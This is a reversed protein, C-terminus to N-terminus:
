LKSQSSELAKCIDMLAECNYIKSMEILDDKQEITSFYNFLNVCFNFFSKDQYVHAFNILETFDCNELIKNYEKKLLENGLYLFEVYFNITSINYEQFHICKNESEIFNGKVMIKILDTARSYLFYSNVEMEGGIASLKFDNFDGKKFTNYLDKHYHNEVVLPPILSILYGKIENKLTFIYETNIADETFKKVNFDKTTYSLSFGVSNLLKEFHPFIYEIFFDCCVKESKNYNWFQHKVLFERRDIYYSITFKRKSELFKLLQKRIFEICKRLENHIAYFPFIDNNNSIYTIKEYKRQISCFLSWFLEENKIIKKFNKTELNNQLKESYRNKSLDSILKGHIRFDLSARKALSEEFFCYDIEGFM